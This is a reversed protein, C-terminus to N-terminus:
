EAYLAPMEEGLSSSQMSSAEVPIADDAEQGVSEAWSKTRKLTNDGDRGDEDTRGDAVLYRDFANLARKREARRGNGEGAIRGEQRGYAVGEEFGDQQGIKWGNLRGNSYGHRLGLRRGEQLGEERARADLMIQKYRRLTDRADTAAEEARDKAREVVRIEFESKGVQRELTEIQLRYKRAEEQQRVVELEARHRAQEALEVRALAERERSQATLARQEAEAARRMAGKLQEGMVILQTKYHQVEREEEALVVSLIRSTSDSDRDRRSSSRRRDHRPKTLSRLLVPDSVLEALPSRSSTAQRLVDDIESEASSSSYM